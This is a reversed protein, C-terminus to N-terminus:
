RRRARATPASSRPSAPASRWTSGTSAWCRATSSRSTRSSCPGRDGRIAAAREGCWRTARSRACVFLWAALACVAALAAWCAAVPLPDALLARAREPCSSRRPLAADLDDQGPRRLHAAHGLPHRPRRQDGRRLGAARLLRRVAHRDRAAALPDLGLDRARLLALLLIWIWSGVFIAWPSGLAVRAVRRRRALGPARGAAPGAGLHGGLAARAAGRAQRARVRRALAAALPLAADRRPRPRAGRADARHLGRAPLRLEVALGPVLLLRSAAIPPRLGRRRSRSCTSTTPSTSSAASSSSRCAAAVFLVLALRSRFVGSGSRPAHWHARAARGVAGDYGRYRRDYVPM